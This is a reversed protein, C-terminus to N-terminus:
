SAAAAAPEPSSSTAAPAEPGPGLRGVLAVVGLAAGLVVSPEM